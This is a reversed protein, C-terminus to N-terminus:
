RVSLGMKFREMAVHIYFLNSYTLVAFSLKFHVTNVALTYSGVHQNGERAELECQVEFSGHDLDKSM